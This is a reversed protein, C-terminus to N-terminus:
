SRFLEKMVALSLMNFLLELNYSEGDQIIEFYKSQYFVRTSRNITYGKNDFLIFGGIISVPRILSM